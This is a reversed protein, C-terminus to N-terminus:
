SESLLKNLEEGYELFVHASSSITTLSGVELGLKTAVFRQLSFLQYVNAPWGIFLDNSRLYGTVSLKSNDIRFFVLALCPVTSNDVNSDQLPDFLSILARRSEPAKSLLPIVFEELQDKRGQFRRIRQGYEYEYISSSANTLMLKEIQELSPYVWSGQHSLWDIPESIDKSPDQVCLVLNAAESCQRGDQDTVKRGDKLVKKLAVKWVQSAHHEVIEM